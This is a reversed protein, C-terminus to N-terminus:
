VRELMEQINLEEWLADDECIETMYEEMGILTCRPEEMIKIFLIILLGLIIIVISLIIDKLHNM